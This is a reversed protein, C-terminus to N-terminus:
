RKFLRRLLGGLGGDNPAASAAPKTARKDARMRYLRVERQADIHSPDLEAVRVFDDNAQDDRGLRKQLQGRFYRARVSSGDRAILADLEGVITKLDDPTRAADARLWLLLAHADIRSPALEIARRLHREAGAADSRKLLVEAKKLELSAEAAAAAESLPARRVPAALEEVYRARRAPDTLTARAADLRGFVRAFLPRLEELGAPVRDPHWTKVAELFARQVDEATATRPVGLAEFHDRALLREARERHARQAKDQEAAM